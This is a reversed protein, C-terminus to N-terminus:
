LHLTPRRPSGHAQPADLPRRARLAEYVPVKLAPVLAVAMPM